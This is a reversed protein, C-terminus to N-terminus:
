VRTEPLCTPGVDRCRYLTLVTQSLFAWANPSITVRTDTTIALLSSSPFSSLLVGSSSGGPSEIVRFSHLSRVLHAMTLLLDAEPQSTVPFTGIGVFGPQSVITGEVDPGPLALARDLDTEMSVSSPEEAKGLLEYSQM